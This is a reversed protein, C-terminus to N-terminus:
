CNKVNEFGVGRNLPTVWPKNCFPDLPRQEYTRPPWLSPFLPPPSPAALLLSLPSYQSLNAPFSRPPFVWSERNVCGQNLAMFLLLCQLAISSCAISLFRLKWFAVPCGCHWWTCSCLRPVTCNGVTGNTCILSLCKEAFPWTILIKQTKTLWITETAVIRSQWQLEPTWIFYLVGHIAYSCDYVICLHIPIVTNWYFKRQLLLCNFIIYIATEPNKCHWPGKWDATGVLCAPKWIPHGLLSTAKLQTLGYGGCYSVNSIM